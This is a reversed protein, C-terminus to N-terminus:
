VQHVIYIGEWVEDYRDGGCAAREALVREELVSDRIITAMLVEESLIWQIRRPVDFVLPFGRIASDDHGAGDLM